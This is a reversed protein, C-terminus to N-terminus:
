QRDYLSWLRNIISQTESESLTEFGSIDEFLMLCNEIFEEKGLLDANEQLLIELITSEQNPLLM